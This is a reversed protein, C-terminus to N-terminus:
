PWRRTSSPATPPAATPAPHCWRTASACPPRKSSTRCPPCLAPSTAMTRPSSAQTASGPRSGSMLCWTSCALHTTQDICAARCVQHEAITWKRAELFVTDDNWTPHLAQIRAAHFNHTRYWLLAMSAGMPNENARPNGFVFFRKASLLTHYYPPPPNAFPLGVDNYPPYGPILPNEALTGNEFSRLVDSWAKQPGYMLTGDIWSSIENFQERPHGPAHGTLFDFRARPFPMYKYYVGGYLPDTENIDINFYEPICAQRQGDLIEEVVQQGFFVLLATRNMISAEGSKGAMVAESIDRPNPRDFGSPEYVGDYYEPTSIRFFHRDSVGWEPEALNHYWGDFTQYERIPPPDCFALATNNCPDIPPPFVQAWAGLALLACALAATLLSPM